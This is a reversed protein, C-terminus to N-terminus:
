RWAMRRFLSFVAWPTMWLLAFVIMAGVYTADSVYPVTSPRELAIAVAFATAAFGTAGVIWVGAIGGPIRFPRVVDPQTYRLRIVAAFIPLYYFGLLATTTATLIWYAANASPICAYAASVITILVAQWVMVAAPVQHANLRRFIPPLLGRRAITAVSLLPGILWAGM